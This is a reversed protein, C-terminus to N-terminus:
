RFVNDKILCQPMEEETLKTYSKKPDYHPLVMKKCRHIYKEMRIRKTSERINTLNIIDKMECQYSKLVFTLDIYRGDDLGIEMHIFVQNRHKFDSTSSTIVDYIKDGMHATYKVGALRLDIVCELELLKEIRHAYAFPTPNPGYSVGLLQHFADNHTVGYYIFNFLEDPMELKQKLRSKQNKFQVREPSEGECGEFMM